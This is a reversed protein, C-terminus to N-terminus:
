LPEWNGDKDKYHIDTAGANPMGYDDLPEFGQTDDDEILRGTYYLNDDCDYMRFEEGEGALLKAKLDDSIGSPGFVQVDLIGEDEYDVETHDKYILWGYAM